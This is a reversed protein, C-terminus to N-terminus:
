VWEGAKVQRYVQRLDWCSSTGTTFDVEPEKTIVVGSGGSKGVQNAPAFYGGGGGGGGLNATGNAGASPGTCM